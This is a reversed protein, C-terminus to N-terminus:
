GPRRGLLRAVARSAASLPPSEHPEEALREQIKHRAEHLRRWLTGEPIQLVRAVETGPLEEVYVMFFPIRLSDPLEAVARELRLLLEQRSSSSEPSPPLEVPRVALSAIMQRRRRESRLFHRCVNAAIGFVWTQASSAGRFKAASRWVALFTTQVLDDLEAADPRVLRSVFRYVGPSLRDSLVGLASREGRACAAILDENTSETVAGSAPFTLVKGTM